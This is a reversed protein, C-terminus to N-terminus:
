PRLDFASFDLGEWNGHDFFTVPDEGIAEILQFLDETGAEDLITLQMSTTRDLKM